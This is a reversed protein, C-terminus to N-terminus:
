KGIGNSVLFQGVADCLIKLETQDFKGKKENKIKQKWKKEDM